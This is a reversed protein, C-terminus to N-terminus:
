GDPASREVLYVVFKARGIMILCPHFFAQTQHARRHRSYPWSWEPHPDPGTFHPTVPGNRAPPTKRALAAGAAVPLPPRRQKEVSEGANQTTKPRAKAAKARSGAPAPAGPRRCSVTTRPAPVM